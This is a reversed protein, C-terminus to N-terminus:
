FPLEVGFDQALDEFETLTVPDLPMGHTRREKARVWERDGPAMVRMGDRAPSQRLQELYRRMGGEFLARGVFGDPDIVLIFAGMERQTSFDPGPMPAIEPSFRMGTLAASLIEAVGGLGAGKFGFEGGLPVLMEAAAPDHTNLGDADSAVLEPLEQGLSKYLQVRNYPVASTAMDLLWPDDGGSPAAVSIPNTGHFRTAGDHLRVFSDSNCTALAIFGQQAAHLTFAGAPGFHSSNRIGVAAIGADRAMEIAHDTAVYAVHAGHGHDGDLLGSGAKVRTFEMKPQGNVRGGRIATIYHPLLRVGHSEVAHISAHMMARTADTATEIDAGARTFVAECFDKLHDANVLVLDNM